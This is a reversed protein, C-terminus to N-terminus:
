KEIHKVNFKRVTINKRGGHDLDQIDILSRVVQCIEDDGIVM